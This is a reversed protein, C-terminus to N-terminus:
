VMNQSGMEHDVGLSPFICPSTRPSNESKQKKLHLGKFLM